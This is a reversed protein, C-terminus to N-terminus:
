NAKVFYSGDFRYRIFKNTVRGQPTNEDEIVVPFRFSQTAADYSFLKIPREPRDVVTFFDYGFSISDTLGSATRIVKADANLSSGEIRYASLTQGALSTSGIFTSEALYITGGKANTQFVQHVFSGASEEEDYDRAWAHSKGKADVYHFVTLFDHMTGGTERDWSIARFKGDKSTTVYAKDKLKAFPYRAVDIRNGFKLLADFLAKNERELIGYDSSGGYNSAAEIKKLHGLLQQEIAAPTQAECIVAAVCILWFLVSLKKM